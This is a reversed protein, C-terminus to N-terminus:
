THALSIRELKLCSSLKAQQVAGRGGQALHVDVFVVVDAFDLDQRRILPRNSGISQGPNGSREQYLMGFRLFYVLIYWIEM